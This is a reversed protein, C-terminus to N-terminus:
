RQSLRHAGYGLAALTATAGAIAAPTKLRKLLSKQIVEPVVRNSRAKMRPGRPTKPTSLAPQRGGGGQYRAQGGRPRQKAEKDFDYM